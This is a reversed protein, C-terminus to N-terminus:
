CCEVNVRENQGCSSDSVIPGKELCDEVIIVNRLSILLHRKLARNHQVVIAALLITEHLLTELGLTFISHMGTLFPPRPNM